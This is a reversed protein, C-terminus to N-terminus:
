IHILSLSHIINEELVGYEVFFLGIVNSPKGALNRASTNPIYGYERIIQEVREKTEPPVNTYGNVVRSVTSRSVGALKAIEESNM